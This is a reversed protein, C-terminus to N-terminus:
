HLVCDVKKLTKSKCCLGDLDRFNFRTFGCTSGEGAPMQKYSEEDDQQESARQFAIRVILIAAECTDLPGRGRPSTERSAARLADEHAPIAEPQRM